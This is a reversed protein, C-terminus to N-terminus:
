FTRPTNIWVVVTPVLGENVWHHPRMSNFTMADGTNLTYDEVGGLNVKLTGALLLLFEEGEHCYSGDSGAGPAITMILPELNTEATSLDEVAVGGEDLVPREDKRVVPSTSGTRQSGLLAPVNTGLAAALKQMSAVSPSSLSREVSSIYSPSLGTEESLQRLSLNKERRLERVRGGANRAHGSESAGGGHGNPGSAGELMLLAGAPNVGDDLLRRVQRLREIDDFTYTRYGSSARQPRILGYKEWMRLSTPTTGVMEAAQRIYVGGVGTSEESVSKSAPVASAPPQRRSGGSRTTGQEGAHSAAVSGSRTSGGERDTM